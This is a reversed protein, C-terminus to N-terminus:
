HKEKYGEWKNKNSYWSGEKRDSIMISYIRFYCDFDKGWIVLRKELFLIAYMQKRLHCFLMRMVHLM